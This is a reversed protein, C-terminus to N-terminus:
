AVMYIERELEKIAELYGEKGGFASAIRSPKGFQRFPDLKLVEISEIEKIGYDKYKDLLAELVERAM